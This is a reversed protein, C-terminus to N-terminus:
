GVLPHAGGVHASQRGDLAHSSGANAGLPALGEMSAVEEPVAGEVTPPVSPTSMSTQGIVVTASSAETMDKGPQGSGTLLSTTADPQAAGTVPTTTETRVPPPEM